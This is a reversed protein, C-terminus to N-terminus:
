YSRYEYYADRGKEVVDIAYTSFSNHLRPLAFGGTLFTVVYISLYKLYFLVTKALKGRISFSAIRVAELPALEPFRILAYKSLIYKIKIILFIILVICWEIVTLVIFFKDRTIFIAVNHFFDKEYNFINDGSLTVSLVFIACETIVAILLILLRWLNVLLQKIFNMVIAKFLDKPSKFLYFIQSFRGTDSKSNILYYSIGFSFPTFLVASFLIVAVTSIYFSPSLSIKGSFAKVFEGNTAFMFLAAIIIFVVSAFLIVVTIAKIIASNVNNPIRM